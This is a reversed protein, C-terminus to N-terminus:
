KNELICILPTSRPPVKKKEEKISFIKKRVFYIRMMTGRGWSKGTGGWRGECRAGGGKQRENSFL